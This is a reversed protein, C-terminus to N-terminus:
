AVGRRVFLNAQCPYHQKAKYEPWVSESAKVLDFNKLVPFENSPIGHLGVPRKGCLNEHYFYRRGIRDIQFLYERITLREMESLSHVNIVLDATLSELRPLEFNPLLFLNSYKLTEHTLPYNPQYTFVKAEPFVNSLYFSQILINEPLDFGIYKIDPRLRLLQHALGGFGGGIEVVVPAALGELLGTLYHAELNYEFALEHILNGKVMYGWPNGIRPVDLEGLQAHANRKWTQFRGKMVSARGVDKQGKCFRDFVKTGDWIGSIGENRFFNHLFVSITNTDGRKLAEYYKRWESAILDRWAGNPQYVPPINQRKAISFSPILRQILDTENAKTETSKIYRAEMWDYTDWGAPNDTGRLYKHVIHQIGLLRDRTSLLINTKPM